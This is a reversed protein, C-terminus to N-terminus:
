PMVRDRRQREKPIRRWACRQGEHILDGGRKGENVTNWVEGVWIGGPYGRKKQVGGPCM